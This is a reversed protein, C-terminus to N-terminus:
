SGSLVLRVIVAFHCLSGGIVLSHYIEHYGFVRPNPDPRRLAYVVAGATYLAGGVFLLAVAVVSLNRVLQPLAVIATWGLAVYMATGARSALRLRLMKLVVGVAAAGWVAGLISVRWAGDLALVALPTYTGAIFIFITSHDIRRMWPRWRPSWPLRHYAASVGYLAIICVVYVASAARSAATRGLAVLSVGAPVWFFFAVQHLRGRMRPKVPDELASM